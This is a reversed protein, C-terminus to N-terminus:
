AAGGTAKAIAARGFAILAKHQKDTGPTHLHCGRTFYLDTIEDDSFEVPVASPPPKQPTSYLPTMTSMWPPVGTKPIAYVSQLHSGLRDGYAVPEANNALEAQLRYIESLAWEAIHLKEPRHQREWDVFALLQEM